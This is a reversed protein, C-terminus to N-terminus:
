ESSSGPGHNSGTLNILFLIIVVTCIGGFVWGRIELNVLVWLLGYGAAIIAAFIALSSLCGAADSSGQGRYPGGNFSSM